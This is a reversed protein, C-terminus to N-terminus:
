DIRFAAASLQGYPALHLQMRTADGGVRSNTNLDVSGNMANRLEPRRGTVRFMTTRIPPLFDAGCIEVQCPFFAPVRPLAVM